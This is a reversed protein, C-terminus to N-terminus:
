RGITQGKSDSEVEVKHDIKKVNRGKNFKYSYSFQIFNAFDVGVINESTYVPTSTEIRQFDLRKSFPLLWFIGFNHDKLQYQFGTGYIPVSYTKSLANITVGNYALYLVVTTKKKKDLNAFAYSTIAYSSYDRSPISFLSENYSNFHGKFIRANINVYWLMANLGGGYEYGSILNYPKSIITMSGDLSSNTISIRNGTRDSFFENYIYPSLYNSGFNRTYTLQLRDRYDPRLDPNGTTIAYDQSIRPNPNMDYIGPRNIRRNYTLKINQAASFKYQINASPLFCSYDPNNVSDASIHSNEVRLVTQMGFNKLNFTIGAYLSNRLEAYEFLNSGEHNDIIFDYSMQQYYIQYGTELKTYMGM